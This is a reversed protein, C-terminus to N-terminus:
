KRLGGEDIQFLGEGFFLEGLGGEKRTTSGGEAAAGAYGRMSRPDGGVHGICGLGALGSVIVIWAAAGDFGAEASVGASHVVPHVFCASLGM